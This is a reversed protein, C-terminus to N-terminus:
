LIHLPNQMFYSLLKQENATLPLFVGKKCTRNEKLYLTIDGSTLIQAQEGPRRKLIAHVKSILVMLSFPKTIYDDACAEYGTVMDIETDMATLFLFLVNSKKRIEACFDLGSGDPLGIDCIILSIPHEEFLERAKHICDALHVLYGEKQLKLSVGRGLSADDEILLIEQAM